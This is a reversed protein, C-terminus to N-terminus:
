IKKISGFNEFHRNEYPSRMLVVQLHEINSVHIIGLYYGLTDNQYEGLVLTRSTNSTTIMM